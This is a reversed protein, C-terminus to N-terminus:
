ERGMGNVRPDSKLKSYHNIKDKLVQAEGNLLMGQKIGKALLM